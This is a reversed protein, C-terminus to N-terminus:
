HSLEIVQEVHNTGQHLMRTAKLYSCHVWKLSVKM